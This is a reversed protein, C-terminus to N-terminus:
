AFPVVEDYERTAVGGLELELEVRTPGAAIPIGLRLEAAQAHRVYLGAEPSLSRAAREVGTEGPSQNVLM